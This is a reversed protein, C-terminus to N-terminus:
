HTLRTCTLVPVKPKFTITMGHGSSLLACCKKRDESKCQQCWMKHSTKVDYVYILCIENLLLYEKEMEVKQNGLARGMSGKEGGM